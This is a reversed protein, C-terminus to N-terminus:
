ADVIGQRQKLVNARFRYEGRATTEARHPFRPEHHLQVVRGPQM